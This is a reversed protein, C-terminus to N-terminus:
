VFQCQWVNSLCGKGKMDWVAGTGLHSSHELDKNSPACGLLIAASYSTRQVAPLGASHILLLRSDLAVGSGRPKEGEQCKGLRKVRQNKMM